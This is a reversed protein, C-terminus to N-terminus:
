PANIERLGPTDFSPKSFLCICYYLLLKKDSSSLYQSTISILPLVIPNACPRFICKLTICPIKKPLYYLCISLIYIYLYIIIQYFSLYFYSLYISLYYSSLCISILKISLYINAQYVYLYYSSLCISILKISM